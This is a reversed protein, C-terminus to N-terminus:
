IKCWRFLLLIQEEVVEVLLDFTKLMSMYNRDDRIEGTSHTMSLNIEIDQWLM